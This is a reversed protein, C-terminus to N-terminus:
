QVWIRIANPFYPHETILYKSSLNVKLWQILKINEDTFTEKEGHVYLARLNPMNKILIVICDRNQVKISCEECQNALSTRSFSLCEIEDLSYNSEILVLARISSSTCSLFSLQPARISPDQRIHLDRLHIARNLVNQLELQYIDEYLIVYLTNLHNLNSIISWFQDPLPFKITISSLNSLCLDSPQPRGFFNEDIIKISHYLTQQNDNPNTSKWILPLKRNHCYSYYRKSTSFRITTDSVDCYIFWQHENIWFSNQFSNFLQNTCEEINQDPPVKYKMDLEFTKLNPLYNRIIEEWQYGNIFNYELSFKLCRLNSLNKLLSIVTSLNDVNYISIDLSIFKSLSPLVCDHEGIITIKSLHKLHPTHKMLQELQDISICCGSRKFSQLTSSIKTPMCITGDRTDYISLSCHRLKPLNWITDTLLQPDFCLKGRIRSDITLHTLNLLHPLKEIIKTLTKSSSVNSLTLSQLGIFQRFSPIYTFFLNMKGPTLNNEVIHLGYILNTLRPIDYQCIQDFENKKISSFKFWHFLHQKYILTNLRTNLRYFARLLDTSHFYGFLFLLIENPLSEFNM